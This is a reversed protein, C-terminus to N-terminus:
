VQMVAYEGPALTRDVYLTAAPTDPNPAPATQGDRVHALTNELARVDVGFQDSPVPDGSQVYTNGAPYWAPDTIWWMESPPCNPFCNGAMLWESWYMDLAGIGPGANTGIIGSGFSILNGEVKLGSMEPVGPVSDFCFMAGYNTDATNNAISVGQAASMIQFVWNSQIHNRIIVLTEASGAYAPDGCADRNGDTGLINIGNESIIINQDILVNSCTAWPYDGAECSRVTLQFAFGAQGSSWCGEFINHRIVANRGNKIEFLNKVVCTSKAERADRPELLARRPRGIFWNLTRGGRTLTKMQQFEGRWADPKHLWNGEVTINSPVLQPIAPCAGGFMINEGSAQLYNNVIRFPGPGNWAGIAQTDQFDSWFGQIVSDECIFGSCNAAIGRKGGSAPDAQLFCHHIHWERPLDELTSVVIDGNIGSGGCDLLGGTYAGPYAELRLGRLTYAAARPSTKHNGILRPLSRSQEETIRNGQQPLEGSTTLTIAGSGTKERFLLDGSWAAGAELVLTDGPQAADLAAQLDAGAPVSTTAM